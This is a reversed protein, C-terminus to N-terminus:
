DNINTNYIRTALISLIPNGILGAFLMLLFNTILLTLILFDITLGLKAIYVSIIYPSRFILFYIGITLAIRRFDSKLLFFSEKFSFILKKKATVSTLLGSIYMISFYDIFIFVIYELIQDKTVLQYTLSSLLLPISIVLYSFWNSKFYTFAKRFETHLDGSSMIDYSLGYLTANFASFVLTIALMIFITVSLVIFLFIRVDQSLRIGLVNLTFFIGFTGIGILVIGFVSVIVFLVVSLYARLNDKFVAWAISFDEISKNMHWIFGKNQVNGLDSVM